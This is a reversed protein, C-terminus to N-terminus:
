VSDRHYRSARAICKTTSKNRVTSGTRVLIRSEARDRAPTIGMGQYLLFYFRGEERGVRLEDSYKLLFHAIGAQEGVATHEDGGQDCSM